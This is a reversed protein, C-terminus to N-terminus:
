ESVHIQSDKLVLVYTKGAPAAELTIKRGPWPEVTVKATGAGQKFIRVIARDELRLGSWIVGDDQIKPVNLSLPVGRDLFDRYGLMEDYIAAADKVEDVAMTEYGAHVPNFIQMGNIGRLWLHRLVERYRGRTM